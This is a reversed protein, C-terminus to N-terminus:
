WGNREACQPCARSQCFSSRQDNTGPFQFPYFTCLAVILYFETAVTKLILVPTYLVHTLGAERFETLGSEKVM